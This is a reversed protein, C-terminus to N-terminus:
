IYPVVPPSRMFGPTGRDAHVAHVSTRVSGFAYRRATDETGGVSYSDPRSTLERGEHAYGVLRGDRRAGLKIRHRTEARYTAITFGQDRAAVLKVPRGLRRAALAILSTRPTMQAKSGFAGGVFRSLVRVDDDALGMRTAVAHRLGYVFQ